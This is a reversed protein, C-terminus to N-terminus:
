RRILILGIVAMGLVIGLSFTSSFGLTYCQAVSLQNSKM